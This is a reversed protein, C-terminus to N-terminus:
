RAGAEPWFSVSHKFKCTLGCVSCHGSYIAHIEGDEAGYFEYDERFTAEAEAPNKWSTVAELMKLYEEPSVKGYAEGADLKAKEAAKAHTDRCKPCVSWDDASM